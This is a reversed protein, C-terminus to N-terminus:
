FRRHAYQLTTRRYAASRSSKLPVESGFCSPEEDGAATRALLGPRSNIEREIIPTLEQIKKLTKAYEQDPEAKTEDTVLAHAGALMARVEAIIDLSRSANGSLDIDGQGNFLGGAV